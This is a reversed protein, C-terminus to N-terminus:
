VPESFAGETAQGPRGATVHATQRLPVERIFLTAILAVLLIPVGALFVPHLADALGHRIGIAIANPAKLRTRDFPRNDPEMEGMPISKPRPANFTSWIAGPSGLESTAMAWTSVGCSIMSSVIRWNPSYTM